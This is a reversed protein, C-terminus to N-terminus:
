EELQVRSKRVAGCTCALTTYEVRKYLTDEASDGFSQPEFDSKTLVVTTYYHKGTKSNPCGEYVIATM